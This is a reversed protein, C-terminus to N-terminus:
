CSGARLLPSAPQIRMDELRAFAGGPVYYINRLYKFTIRVIVGPFHPCNDTKTDFRGFISFIILIGVFSVLIELLMSVSYALNKSIEILTILLILYTLLMTENIIRM